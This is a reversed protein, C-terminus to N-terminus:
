EVGGGAPQVHGLWRQDMFLQGKHTLVACIPQNRMASQALDKYLYFVQDGHRLDVSPKGEQWAYCYGSIPAHVAYLEGQQPTLERNV